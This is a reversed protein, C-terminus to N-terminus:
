NNKTHYQILGDIPKELINGISINYKKCSSILIDSFHFAISGVFGVQFYPYDIYKAVNNSLFADFGVSLLNISYPHKINESLFRTYKALFRNPYPEKYVRNLINGLEPQYKIRFLESLDEPMIKKFYHNILLKGFFAGSAEDGLIYGLAPIKEVIRTGDYKCSNAGTGLICAIGQRNGFISRAAGIMDDEVYIEALKFYARLGSEIIDTNQNKICGTGYFFIKKVKEKIHQNEFTIKILNQIDESNTFFPNIGACQLYEMRESKPIVVWDTKSSGSDAIIIM